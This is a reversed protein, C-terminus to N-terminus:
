RLARLHPARTTPAPLVWDYPALGDEIRALDRTPDVLPQSRRGNLSVPSQVRVEVPGPTGRAHDAHIRHALQLILDPQGSLEREQLATLYRGPSVESVKGTSRDTVVYTISGNKERLMVRWAWRMGQEHWAVDGGYALFRLPLAVQVVCWATALAVAARPWRRPSPAPLSPGVGGVGLRRLLRRPWDPPFFVLASLVMIFPFMGIPFLALTMAHFLVVVAFAFPRTRPALLFWV